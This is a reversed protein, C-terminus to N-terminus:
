FYFSVLPPIWEIGVNDATDIDSFEIEQAELRLNEGYKLSIFKSLGIGFMRM